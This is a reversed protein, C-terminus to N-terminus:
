IFVANPFPTNMKKYSNLVLFFRYNMANEQNKESIKCM